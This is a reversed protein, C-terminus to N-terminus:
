VNNEMTIHMLLRRELIETIIEEGLEQDINEDKVTYTPGIKAKSEKGKSLKNM